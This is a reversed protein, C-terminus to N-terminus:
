RAVNFISFGNKYVDNNLITTVFYRIEDMAHDNEKKVSDNKSNENWRYAFFENISNVCSKHIYIKNHKLAECVLSIGKLVDNRSKILKFENHRKVCEIFSSASPDIVILDIKYGQTLQKLNLYLEEDTLHTRTKKSDHYFEKIRFWCNGCKGWLGFSAPNVIGYDISVVFNTLKNPLTQVVHKEISFMSYIQGDSAVWRGKVFREFFAGSYFNEYRRIIKNSLSPNDSLKFHVYLANKENAKKIWNTFFWHTPYQPNCNFWLKSGQTSCRAITQEVFSQPMLVVEDLLAGTLTLGQILSSSTENNGGFIFFRNKNNKFSLDFYNNSTKFNFKFGLSTLNSQLDFIVNRKISSITKGCFAFKKRNFNFSAWFCFSLAMCLSKGSRIAGDCIIADFHNTKNNAWWTLLLKQKLSFKKFSIM